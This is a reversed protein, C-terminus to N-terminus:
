EGKPVLFITMMNESSYKYTKYYEFDSPTLEKKVYNVMKNTKDYSLEDVNVSATFLIGITLYEIM